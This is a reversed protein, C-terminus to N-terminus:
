TWLRQTEHSYTRTDSMQDRTIKHTAVLIGIAIGIERSTGLAIALNEARNRAQARSAALAGHTALLIAMWESAADFANPEHSYINLGAILGHDDELYLRLSLMSVIGTQEVARHGFAPWRSDLRLDGERDRRCM